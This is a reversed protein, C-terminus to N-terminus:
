KINLDDTVIQINEYVKGISGLMIYEKNKEMDLVITHTIYESANSDKFFGIKCGVIYNNDNSLSEFDLTRYSYLDMDFDCRSKEQTILNYQYINSQYEYLLCSDTIGVVPSGIAIEQPTGNEYKYIKEGDSGYLVDGNAFISYYGLKNPVKQCSLDKNSFDASLIVTENSSNEKDQCDCVISYKDNYLFADYIHGYFSPRELTQMVENEKSVFLIYNINDKEACCYWGDSTPVVNSINSYENLVIEYRFLSRTNQMYAKGQYNYVINVSPTVFLFCLPTALLVVFVACIVIIAIHNKRMKKM